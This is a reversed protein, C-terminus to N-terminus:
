AAPTFFGYHFKKRVTNTSVRVLAAFHNKWLWTTHGAYITVNSLPLGKEDTVRGTVMGKTANKNDSGTDYVKANGDTCSIGTVMIIAAMM